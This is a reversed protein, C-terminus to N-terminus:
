LSRNTFKYVIPLVTFCNLALLGKANDIKESVSDFLLIKFPLYNGFCYTTCVPGNYTFYCNTSCSFVLIGFAKESEQKKMVQLFLLPFDKPMNTCKRTRGETTQEFNRCKPRYIIGQPNRHDDLSLWLRKRRRRMRPWSPWASILLYFFIPYRCCFVNIDIIIMVIYLIATSLKM